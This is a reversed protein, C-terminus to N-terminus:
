VWIEGELQTIEMIKNPIERILNSMLTYKIIKSLNKSNKINKNLFTNIKFCRITM